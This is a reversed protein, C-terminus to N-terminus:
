KAINTIKIQDHKIGIVPTESKGYLIEENLDLMERQLSYLEETLKKVKKTGIRYGIYFIPIIAFIVELISLSYSQLLDFIAEM